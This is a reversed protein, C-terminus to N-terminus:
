GRRPRAGGSRARRARAAARGDREVGAGRGARRARLAAGRAAPRQLVVVPENRQSCGGSFVAELKQQPERGAPGDEYWLSLTGSREDEDFPIHAIRVGKGSWFLFSSTRKGRNFAGAVRLEGSASRLEYAGHPYGDRCSAVIRLAQASAATPGLGLMAAAAVACAILRPPSGVM